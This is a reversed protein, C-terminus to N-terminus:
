AIEGRSTRYLALQMQLAISVDLELIKCDQYTRISFVLSV